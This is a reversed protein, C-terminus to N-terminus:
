FISYKRVSAYNQFSLVYMKGATLICPMFSRYLLVSLLKTTKRSMRYWIMNYAKHFIDASHDMIEQGPYSLVLLHFFGGIGISVYRIMEEKRDILSMIQVGLLSMVIIHIFIMSFSYIEYLSELLNVYEITLQHKWLLLILERYIKDENASNRENNPVKTYKIHYSTRNFNVESTLSELRCGIAAFLGCAHQALSLYSTDTVVMVSVAMVTTLYSYILVPYYYVERDFSYDVDFLYKYPRSQNLPLFIDMLKPTVPILMYLSMLSYIIVAYSITMKRGVLAYEHMIKMELAHTFVHWHYDILSLLHEVNKNKFVILLLKISAGFALLVMIFSECDETLKEWIECLRVFELFAICFFFSTIITPLVIKMFVSQEPWIGLNSMFIKNINYYYKVAAHM